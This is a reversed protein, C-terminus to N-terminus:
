SIRINSLLKKNKERNELTKAMNVAKEMVRCYNKEPNGACQAAL